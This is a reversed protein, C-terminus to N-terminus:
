RLLLPLAGERGKIEGRRGWLGTPERSSIQLATETGRLIVGGPMCDIREEQCWKGREKEQRRKSVDSIAKLGWLLGVISGISYVYLSLQALTGGQFVAIIGYVGAIKNFLAFLTIISCGIKLDMLGIFSSVPFIFTPLWQSPPRIYLRTM